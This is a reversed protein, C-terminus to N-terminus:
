ITQFELFVLELVLSEYFKGKSTDINHTPLFFDNSDSKHFQFKRPSPVEPIIAINNQYFHNLPSEM